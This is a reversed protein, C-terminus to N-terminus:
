VARQGVQYLAQISDDGGLLSEPVNQATAWGRNGSGVGILRMTNGQEAAKTSSLGTQLKEHEKMKTKSKMM